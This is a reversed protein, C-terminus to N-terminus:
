DITINQFLKINSKLYNRGTVLIDNYGDANMDKTNLKGPTSPIPFSIIPGYSLQNSLLQQYLYVQDTLESSFALQYDQGFIFRGRTVNTIKPGTLVKQFLQFQEKNSLYLHSYKADKTDLPSIVIDDIKDDNLEVVSLSYIKFPVNLIASPQYKEHSDSTLTLVRNYTKDLLLIDKLHDNNFNGIAIQDLTKLKGKETFSKLVNKFHLLQFKTTFPFENNNENDNSFIFFSLRNAAFFNPAVIIDLSGDSDLDASTSILDNGFPIEYESHFIFEGIGIGKYFAVFQSSFVISLDLKGDKDFQGPYINEIELGEHQYIYTLKGKIFSGDSQQIFPLVSKKIFSFSLFDILGDNNLDASYTKENQNDGDFQLVETGHASYMM